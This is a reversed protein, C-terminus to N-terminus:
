NAKDNKLKETNIPGYARLLYSNNGAGKSRKNFGDRAAQATKTAVKRSPARTTCKIDGTRSSVTYEWLGNGLRKVVSESM